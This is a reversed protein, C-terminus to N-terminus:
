YVKEKEKLYCRGTSLAKWQGLTEKTGNNPHTTSNKNKGQYKVNQNM